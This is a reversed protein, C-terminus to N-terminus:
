LKRNLIKLHIAVPRFSPSIRLRHPQMLITSKRVEHLVSPLSRDFAQTILNLESKLVLYLNCDSLEFALLRCSFSLCRLLLNYLRRSDDPPRVITVQQKRKTQKSVTAEFNRLFAHFAFFRVGSTFM